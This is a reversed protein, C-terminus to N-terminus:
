YILIYQSIYIFIYMYELINAEQHFFLQNKWNNVQILIKSRRWHTRPTECRSTEINEEM